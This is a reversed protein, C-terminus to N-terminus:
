TMHPMNLYSIMNRIMLTIVMQQKCNWSIISALPYILRSPQMAMIILNSTNWSDTKQFPLVVMIRLFIRSTSGPSLGEDEVEVDRVIVRPVDRKIPQTDVMPQTGVMPEDAVVPTDDIAQAWVAAAPLVLIALITLAIIILSAKM